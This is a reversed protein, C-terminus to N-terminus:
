TTLQGSDKLKLGVDTVFESTPKVGSVFLVERARTCAVYLLHREKAYLEDLAGPNTAAAMRSESPIIGEDCAMVAVGRWEQGKAEHMTGVFVAGDEFDRRLSETAKLHACAVAKHARTLQDRDRVLIALTSPALGEGACHTLWAGVADCEGQETDFSAVTPAPGGFLSQVGLRNDESGDAEVLTSPLLRETQRKIEFTTRYNVKLSRSRGQIDVGEAKWPFPSRFIRQGIDGAFFLGNPRDGVMHAMIRLEAASVDQAEDVVIHDFPSEAADALRALMAAYTTFGRAVLIARADEFLSWLAERREGTLRKRRGLRPLDRYTERDPVQRGDVIHDWEEVLFRDEVSLDSRAKAEDLATRVDEESALRVPGIVREHLTVMAGRMDAITVRAALDPDHGTLVAFKASLSDALAENFTTLLVRAEPNDRALRVARHLAVVTKGTGASGIVRAPGAFDREVFERQAPHLFVAWKDWPAELARALDVEDTLLHFRRKADPHEYPDAIKLPAAPPIGVALNLLAEMAEAPLRNQLAFITDEDVQRVDELWDYPVGCALLTDEATDAFLPAKAVEQTVYVPVVVEEVRERVEVIQAAGTRPHVDLRRREAWRYAADHHDVHALLTDAGSRHLVIRIDDNVRATWFNKDKSADVKHLSLGPHAPDAQIQKATSIAAAIEQATLKTLADMFTDAWRLAM